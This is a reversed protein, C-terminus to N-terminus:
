CIMGTPYSLHSVITTIFEDEKEPYVFLALGGIENLYKIWFDQNPRHSASKSRKFELACWGHDALIITDPKSRDFTSDVKLVLYPVKNHRLRAEVKKLFDKKFQAEM